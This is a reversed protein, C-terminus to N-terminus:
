LLGFTLLCGLLGLILQADDDSVPISMDCVVGSNIVLRLRRGRRGLIPLLAHGGPEGVNVPVAVLAIRVEVILGPEIVIARGPVTRLAIKYVADRGILDEVRRPGRWNRSSRTEARLLTAPHRSQHTLTMGGSTIAPHDSAGDGRSGTSRALGKKFAGARHRAVLEARQTDSLRVQQQKSPARVSHASTRRVQSKKGDLM